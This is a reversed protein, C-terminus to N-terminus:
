RHATPQAGVRGPGDAAPAILLIKSRELSIGPLFRELRGAAQEPNQGQTSRQDGAHRDASGHRCPLSSRLFPDGPWEAGPQPGDM